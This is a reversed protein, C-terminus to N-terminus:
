LGDRVASAKKYHNLFLWSIVLFALGTGLPLGYIKFAISFIFSLFLNAFTILIILLYLNKKDGKIYLIRSIIEYLCIGIVLPFYYIVIKALQQIEEARFEGRYFLLRLVPEVFPLALLMGVSLYLLYRYSRSIIKRITRNKRRHILKALLPFYVSFINTIILGLPIAILNNAYNILSISGEGYNTALVRDIVLNVPLIISGAVVFPVLKLIAGANNGRIKFAAIHFLGHKRATAFLWFTQLMVGLATGAALFYVHHDSWNFLIAFLIIVLNYPLAVFNSLYFRNHFHLLSKFYGNFVFFTVSPLLIIFLLFVPTSVSGTAFLVFGILLAAGSLFLSLLVLSNFLETSQKKQAGMKSIHKIGVINISSALSSALIIPFLSALVYQDLVGSVGFYKGIVVERFLGSVKILLSIAMMVASIKLLKM